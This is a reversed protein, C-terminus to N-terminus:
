YDSINNFLFAPLILFIIKLLDVGLAHDIEALLCSGINCGPSMFCSPIFRKALSYVVFKGECFKFM